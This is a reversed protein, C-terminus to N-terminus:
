VWRIQGQTLRSTGGNFKNFVKGYLILSPEPLGAASSVGSSLVAVAAVLALFSAKSPIPSKMSSPITKRTIFRSGDCGQAAQHLGLDNTARAESVFANDFMASKKVGGWAMAGYAKPRM